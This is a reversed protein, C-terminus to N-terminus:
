EFLTFLASTNTPTGSSSLSLYGLTYVSVFPYRVANRLTLMLLVTVDFQPVTSITYFFISRVSLNRFIEERRHQCNNTHTFLLCSCEGSSDDAAARM